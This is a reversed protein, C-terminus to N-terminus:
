RRQHLVHQGRLQRLPRLAEVTGHLLDPTHPVCGPSGVQQIQPVLDSNIFADPLTVKVTDGALLTRGPVSPDLSTDLTIVFDTASGATTGAPVIPANDVSSVIGGHNGGASAPSLALTSIIIAILAPLVIRTKVGAARLRSIGSVLRKRSTLKQM